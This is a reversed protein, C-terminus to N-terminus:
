QHSRVPMSPPFGYVAKQPLEGSVDALMRAAQADNMGSTDLMYTSGGEPNTEGNTLNEVEEIMELGGGTGSLQQTM